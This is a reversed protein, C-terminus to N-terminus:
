TSNFADIKANHSSIKALFKSQSNNLKLCKMLIKKRPHSVKEKVKNRENSRKKRKYKTRSFRISGTSLEMIDYKYSCLFCSYSSIKM